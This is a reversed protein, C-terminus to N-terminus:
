DEKQTELGREKSSVVVAYHEGYKGSDLPLFSGMAFGQAIDMESDIDVIITPKIQKIESANKIMVCLSALLCIEFVIGVILLSEKM